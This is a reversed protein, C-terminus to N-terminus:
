GLEVINIPKKTENYKIKPPQHKGLIDLKLYSYKYLVDKCWKKIWLRRRLIWKSTFEKLPLTQLFHFFSEVFFLRKQDSSIKSRDTSLWKIGFLVNLYWLCYDNIIKRSKRIHNSNWTEHKQKKLYYKAPAPNEFM